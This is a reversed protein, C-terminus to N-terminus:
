DPTRELAQTADHLIGSDNLSERTKQELEVMMVSFPKAQKVILKNQSILELIALFGTIQEAKSTKAAPFLETFFLRSKQFVKNIIENMKERVSFKERRLLQRIRQNQDNFRLQNRKEIQKIAQNFQILQLKDEIVEESIGYTEPFSFSRLFIGQYYDYRKELEEALYKNRKYTLLRLVLEERPDGANLHSDEQGRDPLLMRSKIQMLTAAMVLFESALEMDILSLSNGRLIRLYQETIDFIPIDYIDVQNLEILHYVLDLPSEFENIKVDIFHNM